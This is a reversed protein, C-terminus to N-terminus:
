KDDFREAQSERLYDVALRAVTGIVRDADPNRLDETPERLFVGVAFRGGDPFEVVGVESRAFILTGTKGSVKVDSSPFGSTLRHPWAQQGMIRRVEASAEEGIVEDRWIAALMTTMERPTTCDTLEPNAARISRLQERQQASLPSVAAAAALVEMPMGLDKDMTAFLGACDTLVTTHELGFRKITENIADYGLLDVIVDTARNDSVSMMLFSLDRLSLEVDDLMASLGTGGITRRDDSALSIRDTPTRQGTTYQRCLEVLVLVKFVSATIVPNDADLGIEIGTDIDIAHVSGRVGAENLQAALADRVSALDPHTPTM